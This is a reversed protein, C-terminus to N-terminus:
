RSWTPRSRSRWLCDDREARWRYYTHDTMGIKKAAQAITAGKSLAVEVGRLKHIIQEPTYRKQGM